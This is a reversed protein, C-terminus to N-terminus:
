ENEKESLVRITDNSTLVAYSPKGTIQNMYHCLCLFNNSISVFQGIGYSLEWEGNRGFYDYTGDENQVFLDKKDWKKGMLQLLAKGCFPLKIHNYKLINEPIENLIPDIYLNNDIRYKNGTASKITKFYPYVPTDKSFKVLYPAVCLNDNLNINLGMDFQLLHNISYPIFGILSMEEMLSISRVRGEAQQIGTKCLLSHISSEYVQSMSM